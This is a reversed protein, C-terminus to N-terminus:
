KKRKAKRENTENQLEEIKNQSKNDNKDKDQSNRDVNKDETNAKSHDHQVHSVLLSAIPFSSTCFACAYPNETMKMALNISAEVVRYFIIM